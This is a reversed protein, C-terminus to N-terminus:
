RRHEKIKNMIQKKYDEKRIIDEEIDDEDIAIGWNHFMDELNETSIICKNSTYNNPETNFTIMYFFNLILFPFVLKM